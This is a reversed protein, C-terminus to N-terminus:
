EGSQRGRPAEAFRAPAAETPTPFGAVVVRNRGRAKARYLAQDAAEILSQTSRGRQPVMTACGISVTV